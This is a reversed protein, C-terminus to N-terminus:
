RILVLRTSLTLEETRLLAWYIGSAAEAGSDSRGDWNAQHEGAETWGDHLVRVQQGMLNFLSIRVQGPEATHFPVTVSANFPTPFPDGLATELVPRSSGLFIAGAFMKASFRKWLAVDKLQWRTFSSSRNQNAQNRFEIVNQGSHLDTQNLIVWWSKWDDAAPVSGYDIGNVLVGVEADNKLTWTMAVDEGIGEFGFKVSKPNKTLAPPHYGFIGTSPLPELQEREVEIRRNGSAGYLTVVKVNGSEARSPVGVVIRSDSWTIYDGSTPRVNPTFLVYGSGRTSRFNAGTLTLRDGPEVRSPFVRSLYPSTVELVVTNSTGESTRVSLNGSRMNVPIRFQIRSSSWTSISPIAAFGIRVSSSGRSSGFNSGTVTVLTNSRGSRPSVTRIWPSTITVRFTGNGRATVVQLNGTRAGTPVRVQIRTDSWSVYQSSSLEQGLYFVVKSTGRISGFGTGRITVVQNYRVPSPTVSTIQPEVVEEVEIRRTGSSGNLTVVKVNGSQARSPVKVIIRRDGWSVYDSSSPRVNPHFLVYGNGRQHNFYSGSLTLRDGPRVSNPSVQGLYPTPLELRFGNSTGESTRVKIDASRTNHPISFRIRSSTWASFSSSSITSSGITVSSSGRRSGFNTGNVTVLIDTSRRQLSINNVWPSTVTLEFTDSGRDTIVQLPGSRAGTPVRVQIRTDSWHVYQSSYQLQKDEHFIVKSTGRDAGFGTGQITIIQGYQARQPNVSTIRPSLDEQIQMVPLVLKGYGSNNDRGPVDIDVTAAILADWLDDRSFSPNASKILAAAGAVHPAAASTGSYGYFDESKGYSVTSVGSPAVLEPKFRGDTTPGRSSYDAVIGLDYFDWHVAGVSIAGRADAPSGISNEAIAYEEFDHNLSWIKLRRTRADVSRVSIGYEGSKEVEYEISEVPDGGFVNQRDTSEAVFELNGSSNVFDLYLDYNQRSDPWDNWTLFVRIEEGKEAEFALVEDERGFNHWNDSDFDSWFGYYHSKSDNGASNVWLIDNEAADNVIDCATGRGDGIGTGFWGLSHNVVDVQNHICRDKANELDVLDGVKYLYLEAEQAMDHVIEACATGHRHRRDEDGAYIGEGTYDSYRWQPPMEGPLVDAGKFGVDIIAVKVGQGTVGALLNDYAGVLWGGESWTEQQAHPRIPRRVFRVGPIESVALLSSTPVSIRMLSNSRALVQVGLEAFSASDISASGMEPYPVLTVVVTDETASDTAKAAAQGTAALNWLSSQIKAPGEPRPPTFDLSQAWLLPVYGPMVIFLLPIAVDAHTFCTFINYIRSKVSSM